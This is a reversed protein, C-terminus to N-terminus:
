FYPLNEQNSLLMKLQYSLTTREVKYKCINGYKTPRQLNFVM